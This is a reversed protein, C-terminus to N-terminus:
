SSHPLRFGEDEGCFSKETNYIFDPEGSFGLCSAQKKFHEMDAEALTQGRGLLYLSRASFEDPVGEHPLRLLQLFNKTNKITSNMMYVMGGDCSPLVHFESTMNYFSAKMTNGEITVTISYRLCTGNIRNREQMVVQTNGAPSETVNVWTSDIMKLMPKHLQQDTYGVLFHKVGYLVSPDALSVPSVLPQCEEPTQASSSLILSAFLLASLWLNM